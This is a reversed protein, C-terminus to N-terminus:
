HLLTNEHERRILFSLSIPYCSVAYGRTFTFGEFTATGGTGSTVEACRRQSQGHFTCKTAVDSCTFTLPKTVCFSSATSSSCTGVFTGPTAIITDGATASDSATKLASTPVTSTTLMRRENEDSFTSKVVATSESSTDSPVLPAPPNTLIDLPTSAAISADGSTPIASSLVHIAPESSAAVCCTLVMMLLLLSRCFPIRRRSSSLAGRLRFTSAKKATVSPEASSFVAFLSDARTTTGAKVLLDKNDVQAVNRGGPRQGGAKNGAGPRDCQSCGAAAATAARRGEAAAQQAASAGAWVGATTNRGADVSSSAVFSLLDLEERIKLIESRVVAFLLLMDLRLPEYMQKTFPPPQSFPPRRCLIDDDSSSSVAVVLARVERNRTREPPLLSHTNPTVEALEGRSHNGATVLIIRSVSTTTILMALVLLANVFVEASGSSTRGAQRRQAGLLLLLQQQQGQGAAPHGAPAPCQADANTAGKAGGRENEEALSASSPPRTSWSNRSASRSRRAPCCASSPPSTAQHHHPSSSSPSSCGGPPRRRPVLPLLLLLLLLYCSISMDYFPQGSQERTQFAGALSEDIDRM